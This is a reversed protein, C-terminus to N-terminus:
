NNRWYEIAYDLAADIPAWDLYQKAMRHAYAIGAAADAVKDISAGDLVLDVIYAAAVHGCAPLSRLGQADCWDEFQCFEAELLRQESISPIPAVGLLSEIQDTIIQEKLMPTLAVGLAQAHM